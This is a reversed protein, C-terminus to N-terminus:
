EHLRVWDNGLGGVRTWREGTAADHLVTIKMENFGKEESIYYRSKVRQSYVFWGVALAVVLTIWLLDRITFRLTM